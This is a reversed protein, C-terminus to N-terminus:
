WKSQKYQTNIIYLLINIELVGFEKLKEYKLNIYMKNGSGVLGKPTGICM